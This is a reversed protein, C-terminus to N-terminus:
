YIGSELYTLRNKLTDVELSLEKIASTLISILNGQAMNLVKEQPAVLNGNYDYVPEKQDEKIISSYWNENSFISKVDQAIFGVEVGESFNLPERLIEVENKIPNWGTLLGQNKKWTFSKPYLNNVINLGGSFPLINEKYKIDSTSVLSTSLSGITGNVQLVSKSNQLNAYGILLVGTDTLRMRRLGGNSGSVATIFDIMNSDPSSSYNSGGVESVRTPVSGGGPLLVEYAAFASFPSATNAYRGCGITMVKNSNDTTSSSLVINKYTPFATNTDRFIVRLGGTIIALSSADNNTTNSITVNKQRNVRLIPSTGASNTNENYDGAFIEAATADPGNSWGGGGMQVFRQTGDDYVGLGNFSISANTSRAGKIVGGKAVGDTPNSTLVINNWATDQVILKGKTVSNFDWNGIGFRGTSSIEGGTSVKLRNDQNASSVLYFDHNTSTGLYGYSSYASSILGVANASNYHLSSTVGSNHLLLNYNTSTYGATGFSVRGTAILMGQANLKMAPTSGASDNTETNPGTYFEIDTADPSGWGGGGIRVLRQSSTDYVGLGNFPYTSNTYRAGKIVGGKAVGDTPNSTLVINNWATDQVILKGKTVSNFDWNGIGFRGTSSIEGGTSVKLRNDQNASSVLYFDHNTSTGLYGYSSYASSILGVANASNYHLSSTVGSNHLLLNYDPSTVGGPTTGFSARGTVILMGQANLKMAPTSGASNPNEVNPGTYFEIDTADPASWGGGGIQVLRQGSTDYVGFASFPHTSNTYRAGKIVGGKSSNDTSTSTLVINNNSGDRVILKGKTVSGIDFTGIGFRGTSSIEGASSITLRAAGSTVLYLDNPTENGLYSSNNIIRNILAVKDKSNYLSSGVIGSSEIQLYNNFPNYNYTGSQGIFLNGTMNILGNKQISMISNTGASNPNENYPGVYFNIRTADPSGWGGGGIEVIRDSNNDWAGLANFTTNTNTYRAGKVVGGKSTINNLTSTLTINDYSSDLVVLKGDQFGTFSSSGILVRGTTQITGDSNIRLRSLNNTVFDLPYNEYVGISGANVGAYNFVQLNNNCNAVSLNTVGSNSVLLSTGSIYSNAYCLGSGILVLSNISQVGETATGAPGAPGTAGSPGDLGTAGTSGRSGVLGSSGTPGSPGTAGTPGTPGIYNPGVSPGTPGAIGSSGQPGTPGIPGTAGTAGTPGASGFGTAGQPGTPGIPGTAGNSATSDIIIDGAGYGNVDLGNSATVTINAGGKIKSVIKNLNKLDGNQVVLVTDNNLDINSIKPFDKINKSPM